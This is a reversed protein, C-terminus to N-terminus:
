PLSSAPFFGSTDCKVRLVCLFARPSSGAGGEASSCKRNAGGCQRNQALATVGAQSTGPEGGRHTVSGSVTVAEGQHELWRGERPLAMEGAVM